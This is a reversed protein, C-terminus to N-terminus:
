APLVERTDDDVAGLLLQATSSDTVLTNIYGARAAALIGPVKAAGVACGITHPIHALDALEMAVLRDSGPFAIPRGQSDFPRSFIDGIAAGMVPADKPLVSPLSSRTRPPAGIGLLVAKATRWLMTVRQILPDELLVKRLPASPMAPAYLLVPTGHVKVAMSRTIENTQYYPEPEDVGGVTPALLVGPLSPLPQQAVAYLSAGSSVLLADGPHLRAEQLAASVGPGLVTGLPVGSASPTIHARRLGLAVTLSAELEGVPVASPERVEIHVIGTSRAEALLRSVRPRSTGLASAVEAQTANELYYLRAARYLLEPPFRGAPPEDGSDSRKRAV